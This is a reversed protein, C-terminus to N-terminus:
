TEDKKFFSFLPEQERDSPSEIECFDESNITGKLFYRQFVKNFDTWSGKQLDKEMFIMLANLKADLDDIMYLVLAEPIKPRKPSGYEYEGHHTLILHKLKLALEMPFNDLKSIKENLMEIGLTIHGLLRGQDTYDIKHNLNLEPIKGIDHLFAGTLLLDRNLEPYNMILQNALKCVWLTHELLGGIYAHHFSKGAPAMKFKSIFNRDSLFLAVLRKLYPEDLSNMLRKLEKLMEEPDHKSQELFIGLDQSCEIKNLSRVKVQLQNNFRVVVGDIEIIDGEEFLPDYDEVMEWIRAEIEGTRDSLTFSLFPSQDKKFRIGKQRVLYTGKVNDNEKLDKVWIREKNNQGLDTM